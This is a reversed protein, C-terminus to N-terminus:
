VLKRVVTDRASFIHGFGCPLMQVLSVATGWHQPPLPSSFSVPDAAKLCVSIDKKADWVSTDHQCQGRLHDAGFEFVKEEWRGGELSRPSTGVVCLQTKAVNTSFPREGVFVWGAGTSDLDGQNESRAGVM